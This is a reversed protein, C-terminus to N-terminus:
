QLSGQLINKKLKRYELFLSFNQKFELFLKYDTDNIIHNDIKDIEGYVLWDLSVNMFKAVKAVLEVSPMVKKSKWTAITSNPIDILTCFQRRSIKKEKLYEDIIDVIEASTRM